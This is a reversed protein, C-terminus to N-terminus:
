VCQIKLGRVRIIKAVNTLTKVTMKVMIKSDKLVYADTHAQQISADPAKHDAHTVPKVNTSISVSNVTGVSDTRANVVSVAWPILAILMQTVVMTQVNTSTLVCVMM